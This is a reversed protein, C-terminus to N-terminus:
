PVRSHHHVDSPVPHQAPQAPSAHASHVLDTVAFQVPDHGQFEQLRAFRQGREHALFSHPGCEQTFGAQQGAAIVIMHGPDPVQILVSASREHDKFIQAHVQAAQDAFARRQFVRRSRQRQLAGQIERQLGKVAEFVQVVQADNVQIDFRAVQHEVTLAPDFDDIQAQGSGRFPAPGRGSPELDASRAITRRLLFRGRVPGIVAGIEIGQGHDQVSQDGTPERVRM